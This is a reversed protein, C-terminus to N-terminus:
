RSPIRLFPVSVAHPGIQWALTSKCACQRLELREGVDRGNDIEGVIGLATWTERNYVRGCGCRKEATQSPRGVEDLAAFLVDLAFPRPRIPILGPTSRTTDDVEKTMVLTPIVALRPDALQQKRFRQGENNAMNLDLLIVNPPVDPRLFLAKMAVTGDSATIVKHGASALDRAISERLAVEDEILLVRM